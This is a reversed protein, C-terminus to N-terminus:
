SLGNNEKITRNNWDEKPIHAGFMWMIRPTEGEVTTAKHDHESVLYCHLDGVEIDVRQEEIYLIGGNDAKQTLINCRLTAVGDDSRSDKHTYVDGGPYTYSFVVGDRGHGDILPYSDIGVFKRIRDSLDRVIQPYEFLHGYLRSTLRLPTVSKNGSYGMSIWKNKVALESWENLLRIEEETAFNRYIDIRM